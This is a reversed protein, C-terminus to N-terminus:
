HRLRGATEFGASWGAKFLIVPEVIKPYVQRWSKYQRVWLPEGILNLYEEYIPLKWENIPM